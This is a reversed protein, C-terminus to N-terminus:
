KRIVAGLKGEYSRILSDMIKNVEKDKLTREINEFMFSIAYSKKGKGLQEENKYVDFLNVEKLLKKDTKYAIGLIETFKVSEDIVLALDRKMTPYKTIEKVSISSKKLFNFISNWNFVAHFVENKIEYKEQKDISIQGFRVIELPGRHYKLGGEFWEDELDAVQFGSIGLKDLVMHVYSKLHFFSVKNDKVMWSESHFNGTMTLSLCDTEQFGKETKAYARGNEFVRINSQKRNQNYLVTELATCALNPRMINLTINSTNNITVHSEDQDIWKQDVLSLGMMESFGAGCLVNAITNKVKFSDVETSNQIAAQIYGPLAVKNFGYIRLIEEVLDVDRTVDAKDTPVEVIYENEGTKELGMEMSELIHVIEDNSIEGGILTRAKDLNLTIKARPIEVPYEDVISSVVKADAYEIMLQAARKLAFVTVEPDSGKEFVMAADTRLLHRFSTRRIGGAEFHASELFIKTTNDTVGSEKGGFVGAICMGAGEGDCIMLDEADLKVEKEDLTTFVSDQPLKQVIIKDGKVKDADFAHLPQGLEHLIFNTIDVINSIPRVGISMLRSQMWEPSPKIKIGDLLVGSYRPCATEDKLEVKYPVDAGEEFKDIAPMNLAPVADQKNVRYYAALDKAVGLHSTADSRNPTLGIDYVVDREFNLYEEASLGIKTDEPLVMIGDHSNGIGLEDEACIMGESVQGRIKGKKIKFPKEGEETPLVTGITAVLVKQGQAVNPAGCVIHLDEESGVDVTTVRLRDADPHQGCTKVHGVVVGTLDPGSMTEDMGEVELGIATLIEELQAPTETINIYEKLWNLSLKM